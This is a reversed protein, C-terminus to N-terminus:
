LQNQTGRQPDIIQAENSISLSNHLDNCIPNENNQCTEAPMPFNETM